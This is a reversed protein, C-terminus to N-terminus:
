KTQESEDTIAAEIEALRKQEGALQDRLRSVRERSRALIARLGEERAKSKDPWFHFGDNGHWHRQDDEDEDNNLMHVAHLKGYDNRAVLLRCKWGHSCTQCEVELMVGSESTRIGDVIYHFQGGCEVHRYLSDGIKYDEIRKM